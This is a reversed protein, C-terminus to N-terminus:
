TQWYSQHKKQEYQEQQDPIIASLLREYIHITRREETTLGVPGGKSDVFSLLEECALMFKLIEFCPM